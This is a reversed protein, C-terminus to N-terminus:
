SGALWHEERVTYFIGQMLRLVGFVIASPSFAALTGTFAMM